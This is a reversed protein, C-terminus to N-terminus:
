GISQLGQIDAGDGTMFSRVAEVDEVPVRWPWGNDLRLMVSGARAEEVAAEVIRDSLKARVMQGVHFPCENRRVRRTAEDFDEAQDAWLGRIVAAPVTHPKRTPGDATQIVFGLFGTVYLTELADRFTLDGRGYDMGFFLYGPFRFRPEPRVTRGQSVKEYTFLPQAWFGQRALDALVQGDTRPEVTLGHWTLDM